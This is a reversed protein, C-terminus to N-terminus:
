SLDGGGDFVTVPDDQLKLTKPEFCRFFTVSKSTHGSSGHKPPLVVNKWTQGECNPKHPVDAASGSRTSSGHTGTAPGHPWLTSSAALAGGQCSCGDAGDVTMRCIRWSLGDNTERVRRHQSERRSRLPGDCERTTWFSGTRRMFKKTQRKMDSQATTAEPEWPHLAKIHTQEPVARGSGRGGGPRPEPGLIGESCNWIFALSCHSTDVHFHLRNHSM